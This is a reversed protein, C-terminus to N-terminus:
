SHTTWWAYLQELNPGGPKSRVVSLMQEEDTTWAVMPLNQHQGCVLTGAPIQPAANRRWPGPSQYNGPCVVVASTHVVDDFATKLAQKDKLLTYSASTPGGPDANNTCNVKAIAERPPGVPSCAGAPYGAPILRLLRAQQEPDVPASSTTTPPAATPAPTEDVEPKRLWLAVGAVAVAVALGAAGLLIVRHRNSSVRTAPPPFGAPGASWPNGPQGPGTPPLQVTAGAVWANPIPLPATDAREPEADQAAPAPEPNPPLSM